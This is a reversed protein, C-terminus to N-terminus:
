QATKKRLLAKNDSTVILAELGLPVINRPNISPHKASRPFVQPFQDVYAQHSARLANAPAHRGVAGPTTAPGCPMTSPYVDRGVPGVVMAITGADPLPPLPHHSSEPRVGIKADASRALNKERFADVVADPAGTRPAEVRSWESYEQIMARM